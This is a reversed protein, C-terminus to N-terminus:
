RRLLWAAILTAGVITVASRVKPDRRGDSVVGEVVDVRDAFLLMLWHRLDNESHRFARRRIWGSVGRPPLTTGFVPPMRFHETSRLVEVKSQQMPPDDWHVGELRPPRREKPVAPRNAPDLDAGWGPIDNRPTNM